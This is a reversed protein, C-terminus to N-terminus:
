HVLKSWGVKIDTLSSVQSLLFPTVPVDNRQMDATLLSNGSAAIQFCKAYLGSCIISDSKLESYKQPLRITPSKIRFKILFAAVLGYRAVGLHLAAELALQMGLLEAESPAKQTFLAPRRVLIRSNPVSALLNGHTVHDGPVAEILRWDKLYVAAHTWTQTGAPAVYQPKQANIIETQAKSPELPQLLILDGARLGTIDPVFGFDIQEQTLNPLDGKKVQGTIVAPTINLPDLM